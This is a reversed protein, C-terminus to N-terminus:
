KFKDYLNYGLVDFGFKSTISKVYEVKDYSTIICKVNSSNISTTVGIENCTSKVNVLSKGYERKIDNGNFCIIIPVNEDKKLSEGFNKMYFEIQEEYSFCAYLAATNFDDTLSIFNRKEINNDFIQNTTHEEGTSLQIGKEKLESSSFLGKSLITQLADIKTGHFINLGNNVLCDFLDNDFLIMECFNIRRNRESKDSYTENSLMSNLKYGNYEGNKMIQDIAEKQADTEALEMFCEYLKKYGPYKIFLNNEKDM